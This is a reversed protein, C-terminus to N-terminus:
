GRKVFVYPTFEVFDATRLTFSKVQGDAVEFHVPKVGFLPDSYTCLFRNGGLAELKATLNPHHQLSLKLHDGETTIDLWGYAEHDYRGTYATLPLATAPHMAITDRQAATAAIGANRQQQYGNFYRDDYNKYPLGLFADVIEYNLSQYFGNQDTNTFVMVALNEEPCLTFSTVFGNVGGTHSVLERGEYDALAWGMGYLRYHGRGSRGIISLPIATKGNYEGSDLLAIAWHSMDNISSSISGAPALNDIEGYPIVAMNGGADFSHARAANAAAPIEASLALTRGMGLPAFLHERLYGAWSQGSIKEICLGAALFGANTYGWKSRFSYRPTLKGFKQLVEGRSLGSTWYMFDGQFTEMGIRHSVLDALNAENEVWDDKMDFQPLWKKVRDDMSCRGEGALMALATGTFAKTNSGIMFLTNADVPASRGPERVGYGKALVLKGDKVIGVAVGPVQWREMGRAVYADLSDTVFAPLAAPQAALQYYCFLFFAPFLAKRFM